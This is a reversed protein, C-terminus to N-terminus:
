ALHLAERRRMVFQYLVVGWGFGVLLFAIEAGPYSWKGSHHWFNIKEAMLLLGPVINMGILILKAYRDWRSIRLALLSMLTSFLLALGAAAPVIAMGIAWGNDDM